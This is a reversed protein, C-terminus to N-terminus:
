HRDRKELWEKLEYITVGVYILLSLAKYSNVKTGYDLSDGHLVDHRNVGSPKGKEQIRRAEGVELLPRLLLSVYDGQEYESAWDTTAPRGKKLSFFRSGVIETCIGEVQAFFVPISLYYEGKRHADFAALIIKSRTPFRETLKQVEAVSGQDIIEVIYSDASSVGGSAIKDALSNMTAENVHFPLYWGLQVLRRLSEPAKLKEIRWQQFLKTSYQIQEVFTMGRPEIGVLKKFRWKLNRVFLYIRSKIPITISILVERDDNTDM